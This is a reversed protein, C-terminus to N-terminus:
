ENDTDRQQLSDIMMQIYDAFEPKLDKVRELNKIADEPSMIRVLLEANRLIISDPDQLNREMFQKKAEAMIDPSDAYLLELRRLGILTSNVIDDPRLESESKGLSVLSLSSLRIAFDVASKVNAKADAIDDRVKYYNLVKEPSLSLAQAWHSNPVADGLIVGDKTIYKGHQYAYWAKFADSYGALSKVAVANLGQLAEEKTMDEAVHYSRGLRYLEKFTNSLQAAPGGLILDGENTFMMSLASQLVNAASFRESFNVKEGVMNNVANGILGYVFYDRAEEPLNEKAWDSVDDKADDWFFVGTATAGAGMMGTMTLTTMAAQAWSDAYPNTGKKLFGFKNGTVARALPDVYTGLFMKQPHQRFQFFLQSFTQQQYAFQDSRNQTFTLRGALAQVENTGRRSLAYELGKKGAVESFSFNWSLFNNMTIGVKAPIALGRGLAHVYEIPNVVKGWFKASRLNFLGAEVKASASIVHLIDDGVDINFMGSTKMNEIYKAFQTGTMGFDGSVSSFIKALTEPKYKNPYAMALMVANSRVVGQAFRLPNKAFMGLGQLINAPLQYNLRYAIIFTTTLKLAENLSMNGLKAAASVIGSKIPESEAKRIAWAEMGDLFNKYKRGNILRDQTQIVDFWRKAEERIDADVEDKWRIADFKTPFGDWGNTYKAFTKSFRSRQVEIAEKGLLGRVENLSKNLSTVVDAAEALGNYGNGKLQEGRHRAHSPLNTLTRGEDMGLVGKRERSPAYSLRLRAEEFSIGEQRAIQDAIDAIMTETEDVSGTIAITRNYAITAGDVVRADKAEIVYQNGGKAKTQVKSGVPTPNIAEGHAAYNRDIHGPRVNMPKAPLDKIDELRVVAHYFDGTGTEMARNFRVVVAGSQYVGELVEESNELVRLPGSGTGHRLDVIQKSQVGSVSDSSPALLASPKPQEVLPRGYVRGDLDQLPSGNLQLGKYGESSLSNYANRQRVDAVARYYQRTGSYANWVADSVKEGMAQELQAKSIYEIGDADGKVLASIWQNRSKSSNLGNLAKLPQAVLSSLRNAKDTMNNYTDFLEREIRASLPILSSTFVDTPGFVTDEFQGAYRRDPNLNTKVGIFIDNQGRVQIEYDTGFLFKAAAEAEQVTDYGGDANKGFAVSVSLTGDENVMANGTGSPFLTGRSERQVISAYVDAAQTIEKETLLDTMNVNNLEAAFKDYMLEYKTKSTNSTQGTLQNPHLSPTGNLNGTVRVVANSPTLGLQGVGAQASPANRVIAGVQAPNVPVMADFLSATNMHPIGSSPTIPNAVRQPDAQRLRELQGKAAGSKDALDIQAQIGAARSELVACREAKEKVAMSQAQKFKMGQAQLEKTREKTDAAKAKSLDFGINKKLGELDKREKRTIANAAQSQLGIVEEDVRPADVEYFRFQQSPMEGQIGVSERLLKNVAEIDEPSWSGSPKAVLAPRAAKLVAMRSVRYITDAWTAADVADLTDLVAGITKGRGRSRIDEQIIDLYETAWVPNINDLGFSTAALEDSEKFFTAVAELRNLYEETSLSKDSLYEHVSDAANAKAIVLGSPEKGIAEDLLSVFRGGDIRSTASQAPNLITAAFELLSVRDLQEGMQASIVDDLYSKMQWEKGIFDFDLAVKKADPTLAEVAKEIIKQEPTKIKYDAVKAALQRTAAIPDAAAATLSGLNNWFEVKPDTTVQDVVQLMTASLDGYRQEEVLSDVLGETNEGMGQMVIETAKAMQSKREEKIPLQTPVSSPNFFETDYEYEDEFFSGGSLPQPAAATASVQAIDQSTDIGTFVEEQQIGEFVPGDGIQIPQIGAVDQDTNIGEFVPGTGIQVQNEPRAQRLTNLLVNKFGDTLDMSMIKEETLNGSAAEKNFTELSANFMGEWEGQSTNVEAM